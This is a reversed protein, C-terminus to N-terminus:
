CVEGFRHDVFTFIVDYQSTVYLCVAYIWYCHVGYAVMPTALPPWFAM